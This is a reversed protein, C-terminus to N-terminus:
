IFLIGGEVNRMFYLRQLVNMVGPHHGFQHRTTVGLADIYRPSSLGCEGFPRKIVIKIFPIVVAVIGSLRRM